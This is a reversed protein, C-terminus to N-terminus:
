LCAGIAEWPQHDECKFRVPPPDIKLMEGIQAFLLETETPCFPRLHHGYPHKHTHMQIIKTHDGTKAVAKALSANWPIIRDEKHYFICKKGKLKGWAEKVNLDFSLVRAGLRLISGLLKLEQTELHLDSFSRLNIAAIKKDPYKEQILSAGCTGYAAGMSFGVLLIDEPDLGEKHILYEYASYIDLAYGQEYCSGTSEGTSRPNVMLLSVGLEKFDKLERETFEWQQANGVAYIIAKQRNKGPFFAGQLAAGDASKITIRTGQYEKILKDGALKAKDNYYYPFFLVHLYFKAIEWFKRFNPMEDHIPLQNWTKWISAGRGGPVVGLLFARDKIWWIVLRVIGIPFVIISFVDWFVRMVKECLRRCTWPVEPPKAEFSTAIPRNQISLTHM